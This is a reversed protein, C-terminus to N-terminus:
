ERYPINREYLNLRSNFDRKSNENNASLLRIAEKEEVVANTFRGVEAYAAALTDLSNPDSRHNTAVLKEAYAVANAGNRISSDKCTALLWALDNQADGNGQDASKHFWHVAEAYNTNVGLGYEYMWGLHIQAYANTRDAAERYWRAAEAYNTEVGVGNEYMWGWNVEVAVNQGRKRYWELARNYEQTFGESNKFKVNLKLDNLIKDVEDLDWISISGDERSIGLHRSDPSWALWFISGNEEPLSIAVDGTHPDRIDVGAGSASTVALMSGDPSLALLRSVNSSKQAPMPQLLYSGDIRFITELSGNPGLGLLEHGDPTFNGCELETDSSFSPSNPEAFKIFDWFCIWGSSSFALSQSDPAFTISWICAPLNRKSGTFSRLLKANLGDSMKNTDDWNLEWIRVTNDPAPWYSAAAALYHGDPSFQISWTRGGATIETGLELLRQGTRADWIWVQSTDFDGTAIWKGNPSYAVSQGTGPLNNTQWLVQGTKVDYVCIGPNKSVSAIKKGDPSFVVGPVEEAHGALDMEEPPNLHYLSAQNWGATLLTNAIPSYVIPLSHPEYLVAVNEKTVLNWLRISKQHEIRVAIMDGCFVPSYQIYGNFQSLRDLDPLKYIAGGPQALCVFYRGDHSLNISGFKPLASQNILRGTRWDYLSVEASAISNRSDKLKTNTEVLLLRGDHTFDVDIGLKDRYPITVKYGAAFTKTKPNLLKFQINGGKTDVGNALGSNGYSRDSTPQSQVAGLAIFNTKESALIVAFTEEEINVIGIAGPCESESAYQWKGNPTCAWSYLKDDDLVFLENGKSNFCMALFNANPCTFNAVKKGTPMERLQITGDDLGFAGLRGSLDLCASSSYWGTTRPALHINPFNTFSQPAIGAFDGLCALAEQRLRNLDKEPVDLAEAQELLAFVDDRYGISRALRTARAQGVLSNYLLRQAHDKEKTENAEAMQAELRLHRQELEAAVAQKRTQRELIFIWTTAALGTILAVTVIAAATYVLKNRRVSKQFRYLNSPPCATIPENNLHREIDRAFGSATEYRRSRDKDLAKMVIWDLDGRILHILKPPDARRHKATTTLEPERLTSLRTSPRPPEKERIVCRMADLGSALLDKPDFPTKGTLLEYLLIGLSYIDSRTDIDIATMEAQEPSMYAPTGIFQEFATFLTKDTLSQGATAKAIGFDIIKPSPTGDEQVTVLINSPKIDRHIIGKQHAHQIAQCIKIFLGLRETTSLNSRDCYDTIKIGRVLEMVFYPRGTETAAADLVKAINPHDMLALAQREAEFRAIVQKTDMGLKVVKLAVKRRVPEHQEAMWVTGMGGEGIQQLLKYHGIRDGPKESASVEPLPEVRITAAPRATEEDPATALELLCRPCHGGPSDPALEAGCRSCKKPEIMGQNM